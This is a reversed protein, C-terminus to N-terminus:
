GVEIKIIFQISLDLEAELLEMIIMRKARAMAALIVGDLGETRM